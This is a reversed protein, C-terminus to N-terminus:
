ELFKDLANLIEDDEDEEEDDISFIQVAELPLDEQNEIENEEEVEGIEEDQDLEHNEYIESPDLDDGKYFIDRINLDENEVGIIYNEHSIGNERDHRNALGSITKVM